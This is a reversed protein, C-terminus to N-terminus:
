CYTLKSYSILVPAVELTDPTMLATPTNSKLKTNRGKKLYMGIDVIAARRTVIDILITEYSCRIWIYL